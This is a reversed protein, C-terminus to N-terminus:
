KYKKFYYLFINKFLLFLSYVYKPHQTESNEKYVNFIVNIILRSYLM